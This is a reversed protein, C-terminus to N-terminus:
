FPKRATIYTWCANFSPRGGFQTEMAHRILHLRDRLAGPTPEPGGVWGLVADHYASLFEFWESVRAEITEKRVDLVEFGAAEM